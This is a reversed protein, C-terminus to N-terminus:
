VLVHGESFLAIYLNDIEQIALLSIDHFKQTPLPQFPSIHHAGRLFPLPGLFSFDCCRSTSSEFDLSITIRPTRGIKRTKEGMDWATGAMEIGNFPWIISLMQKKTSQVKLGHM